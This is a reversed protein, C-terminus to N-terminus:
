IEGLFMKILLCEYEEKEDKPKIRISFGEAKLKNFTEDDKPMARYEELSMILEKTM